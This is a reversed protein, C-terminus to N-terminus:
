PCEPESNRKQMTLGADAWAEGDVSGQIREDEALVGVFTWSVVSGPLSALQVDAETLSGTVGVITRDAPKNQPDFGFGVCGTVVGAESVSLIDLEVVVGAASGSWRGDYLGPEIPDPDPGTADSDCGALALVLALATTAFLTPRM